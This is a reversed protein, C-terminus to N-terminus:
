IPINMNKNYLNKMCLINYYLTIVLWQKGGSSKRHTLIRARFTNIVLSTKRYSWKTLFRVVFLFILNLFFIFLVVVAIIIIIFFFFTFLRDDLVSKCNGRQVCAKTNRHAETWRRRIGNARFTNTGDTTPVYSTLLLLLQHLLRTVSSSSIIRTRTWYIYNGTQSKKKLV